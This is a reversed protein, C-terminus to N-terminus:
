STTAILLKGLNDHFALIQRKIPNKQKISLSQNCTSLISSNLKLSLLNQFKAEYPRNAFVHM